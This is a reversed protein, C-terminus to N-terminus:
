QTQSLSIRVKQYLRDQDMFLYLEFNYYQNQDINDSSITKRVMKLDVLYVHYQYMGDSRLMKDFVYGQHMKSLIDPTNVCMYLLNCDNQIKRISRMTSNILELSKETTWGRHFTNADDSYDVIHLSSQLEIINLLDVLRRIPSTIHIYKDLCLADHTMANTLKTYNGGTSYWGKLFNRIDNNKVTIDPATRNYSMTRYIGIKNEAMVKACYHNMLIMLYAIVDHCSKINDLYSQKLNLKTTLNLVQKYLDNEKMEVTDYRLNHSVRIVTSDLEYKVINQNVDLYIDLALAFRSSKAQLSCLMDSLITPLMPLKRDPLYITAIRSSFSGWLGLFDMWLPVNAIYISLISGNEIQKLGFADDFDKSSKPDITVINHDRRDSTRYREMIKGILENEPYKQLIKRTKKTFDQISANLSRCYLQYQYFSSLDCVTGLNQDIFGIPHKNAWDRFYIIVYRNKQAKNFGQKIRYGVLFIPLRRDDPIFKYLFKNKIKGFTQNNELALIGAISGSRTPSNCITVQGDKYNFIDFNFLKNKVPQFDEDQVIKGSKNDTVTYSSYDRDASSFRYM